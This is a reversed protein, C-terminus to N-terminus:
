FDYVQGSIASVQRELESIRVDLDNITNLVLNIRDKEKDAIKEEKTKNEKSNKIINKAEIQLKETSNKEIWKKIDDQSNFKKGDKDCAGVCYMIMMLHYLEDDKLVIRKKLFVEKRWM